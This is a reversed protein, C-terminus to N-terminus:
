PRDDRVLSSRDLSCVERRLLFHERSRILLDLVTGRLTHPSGGRVHARQQVPRTHGAQSRGPKDMKGPLCLSVHDYDAVISCHLMEGRTWRRLGM